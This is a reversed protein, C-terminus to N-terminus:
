NVMQEIVSGAMLIGYAVVFLSAAAMIDKIWIIM